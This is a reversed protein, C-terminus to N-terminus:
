SPPRQAVASQRPACGLVPAPVPAALCFHGRSPWSRFVRLGSRLLLVSTACLIMMMMMLM